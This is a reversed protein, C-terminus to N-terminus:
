SGIGMEAMWTLDDQTLEGHTKFMAIYHELRVLEGDVEAQEEPTDLGYEEQCLIAEAMASTANRIAAAILSTRLTKATRTAHRRTQKRTEEEDYPEAEVRAEIAAEEVMEIAVPNSAIAAAVAETVSHAVMEPHDEALRGLVIEATREDLNSALVEADLDQRDLSRAVTKEDKRIYRTPDRDALEAWSASPLEVRDGPAAEVALGENIANQWSNRYRRVTDQARLGGIGLQAFDRITSRVSHRAIQPGPKGEYTFAFVIVSREWEKATL